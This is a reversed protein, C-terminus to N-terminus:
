KVKSINPTIVKNATAINGGTYTSINIKQTNVSVVGGSAKM